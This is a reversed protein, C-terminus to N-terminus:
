QENTVEVGNRFVKGTFCGHGRMVGGGLPLMGTCIDALTKEFAYQVKDKEFATKINDIEYANQNVLIEFNIVNKQTIVKEDFLAGAKAGGTFRDIAV